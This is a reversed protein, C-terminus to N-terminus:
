ARNPVEELAPGIKVVSPPCVNPGCFPDCCSEHSKAHEKMIVAKIQELRTRKLELDKLKDRVAALRQDLVRSLVARAKKGNLSPLLSRIEALSLGLLRAGQIMRLREVDQSSYLRYGASAYGTHQRKPKPIVGIEEYYRITKPGLGTHASVQGIRLYEDRM